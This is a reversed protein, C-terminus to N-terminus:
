SYSRRVSIQFASVKWVAKYINLVCKLLTNHDYSPGVKVAVFYFTGGGWKWIDNVVGFVRFLTNFIPM